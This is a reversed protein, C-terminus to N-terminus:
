LDSSFTCIIKTGRGLASQVQVDADIMGARYAITRLGMGEAARQTEYPAFGGGDDEITLVSHRGARALSVIIRSPHAHKLANNIAEQTIRYLHTAAISDKIAVRGDSQLLCEVEFLTTIGQVLEQLASALGNSELAVPAMGRALVRTREIAESVDAAIKEVRGMVSKQAGPGLTKRLADCSFRIGALRQCLDDHLDGGIRRQERDSIELIEQELAKRATIDRV